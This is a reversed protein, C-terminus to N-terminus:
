GGIQITISQLTGDNGFYEKAGLPLPNNKFAAATDIGALIKLEREFLKDDSTPDDGLPGNGYEDFLEIWAGGFEFEITIFAVEPDNRYHARLLRSFSFVFWWSADAIDRMHKDLDERWAFLESM